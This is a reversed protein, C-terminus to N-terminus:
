EPLDLALTPCSLLLYSMGKVTDGVQDREPSLPSSDCAVRQKGKRDMGRERKGLLFLWEVICLSLQFMERHWFVHKECEPRVTKDFLECLL